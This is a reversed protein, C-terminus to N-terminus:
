VTVSVNPPQAPDVALQQALSGKKRKLFPKEVWRYSAEALLYAAPIGIAAIGVDAWAWGHVTPAHLEFLRGLIVMHLLYIGYSILGVRVLPRWSLVRQLRGENGAFYLVAGFFLGAVSYKWVWEYDSALLVPYGLDSRFGKGDAFGQAVLAATVVAFLAVAAKAFGALHKRVEPLATCAGIAFVDLYSAPSCYVVMAQLPKIPFHTADMLLWVGWRLLPGAFALVVSARVFWRRPLFFALLAWVVYLQVEVGLSWVQAYLVMPTPQFDHLMASLNWTWTWLYPLDRTLIKDGGVLAVVTLGAVFLFYLPALRLLRNRFFNKARQARSLEPHSLLTRTIFHGSLVFFMPVGLWGFKLQGTHYLIVALVALARLGDLAAVHTQRAAPAAGGPLDGPRGTGPRQLTTDTM